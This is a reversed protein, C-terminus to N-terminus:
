YKVATGAADNVTTITSTRGLLTGTRATVVFNTGATASTTFVVIAVGSANTVSTPSAFTGGSNSSWTVTQNGVAIPNGFADALQALITVSGGAPVSVAS